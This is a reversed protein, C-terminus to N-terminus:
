PEPIHPPGEFKFHCRECQYQTETGLLMFTSGGCKECKIREGQERIRAVLDRGIEDRRRPDAGRLRHDIQGRVQRITKVISLVILGILLVLAVEVLSM